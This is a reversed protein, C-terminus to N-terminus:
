FVRGRTQTVAHGMSGWNAVANSSDHQLGILEDNECFM